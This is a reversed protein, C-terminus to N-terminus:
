RSKDMHDLEQRILKENILGSCKLLLFFVCAVTSLYEATPYSKLIIMFVSAIRIINAPVPASRMEKLHELAYLSLLALLGYAFYYDGLGPYLWFVVLIAITGGRAFTKRARAGYALM